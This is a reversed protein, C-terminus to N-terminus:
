QEHALFEGLAVLPVLGTAEVPMKERVLRVAADLVKDRVEVLDIGGLRRKM